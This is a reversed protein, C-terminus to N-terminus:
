VQTKELVDALQPIQIPSKVSTEETSRSPKIIGSITPPLQYQKYIYEPRMHDQYVKLVPKPSCLSM